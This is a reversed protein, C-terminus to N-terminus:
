RDSFLVGGKAKSEKSSEVIQVTVSEPPVGFNKVMADTLDKVLGRKQDVTRGEAAFVMIEPM